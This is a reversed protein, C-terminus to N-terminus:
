PLEKALQRARKIDRDQSRKTGGCLVVIVIREREVVYLRYGPGYHVRMEVLGDFRKVDGFHGQRLRALRATIAAKATEDKLGDLWDTFIDTTLVSFMM